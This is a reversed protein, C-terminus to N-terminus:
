VEQRVGRRGLRPTAHGGRAARAAVGLGLPGRGRKAPVVGLHLPLKSEQALDLVPDPVVFGKGVEHLAEAHVRVVDDAAVLQDGELLVDDALVVVQHRRQVLEQHSRLESRVVRVGPGVLGPVPAPVGVEGVLVDGHGNRLELHGVPLAHRGRVDTQGNLVGLQPRRAAVLVHGGQYVVVPHGDRRARLVVVELVVALVLVLVKQEHGLVIMELKIHDHVLVVRGDLGHLGEHLLDGLQRLVGLGVPLQGFARQAGEVIPRHMPHITIARRLHQSQQPLVRAHSQRGDQGAQLLLGGLPGLGLDLHHCVPLLDELLVVLLREVMSREVELLVLLLAERGLEEEGLELLDRVLLPVLLHRHQEAEGAAHVERGPDGGVHRGVDRVGVHQGVGAADDLARDVVHERRVGGLADSVEVVGEDLREKGQM